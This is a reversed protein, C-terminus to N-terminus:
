KSRKGGNASLVMTFILLWIGFLILALGLVGFLWESPNGMYLFGLDLGLLASVAGALAIVFPEKWWTGLLLFLALFVILVIENLGMLSAGILESM